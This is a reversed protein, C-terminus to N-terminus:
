YRRIGILNLTRVAWGIKRGLEDCEAQQEPTLPRLLYETKRIQELSFSPNEVATM